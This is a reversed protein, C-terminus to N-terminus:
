DGEGMAHRMDIEPVRGTELLSKLGSLIIPWGRRGGELFAESIPGAHDETMTLRCAEGAPEIEFSVMTEPLDAAKLAEVTWTFRVLRPPDIEAITGSVDVNGDPMRYRVVGGPRWDSEVTRGFFYRRSQLGETLASWIAERTAAIYIVYNTPSVSM